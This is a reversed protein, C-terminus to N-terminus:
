IDFKLFTKKPHFIIKKLDNAIPPNFESLARTLLVFNETTAEHWIYIDYDIGPPMNSSPHTHGYFSTAVGGIFM